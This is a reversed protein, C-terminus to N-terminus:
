TRVCGRVRSSRAPSRSRRRLQLHRLRHRQLQPYRRPHYRRPRHRLRPHRLPRHQLQLRQRQLQHPRCLRPVESRSRSSSARSQRGHRGNPDRIPLSRSAYPRPGQAARPAQPQGRPMPVRRGHVPRTRGCTSASPAAKQAWSTPTRDWRSRARRPPKPSNSPATASSWRERVLSRTLTKGWAFPWAGTAKGRDRRCSPSGARRRLHRGRASERLVM